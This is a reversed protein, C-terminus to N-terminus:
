QEENRNGKIITRVVPWLTSTEVVFKLRNHLYRGSSDQQGQMLAEKAMRTAWTHIGEHPLRTQKWLDMCHKSCQDIAHSSIEIEPAVKGRRKLEAEAFDQRSHHNNVMWELYGSPVRTYLQGQYKGTDIRLNHTNIDGM